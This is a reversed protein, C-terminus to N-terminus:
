CLPCMWATEIAVLTFINWSLTSFTKPLAKIKNCDNLYLAHLQSLGGIDDPISVADRLELKLEEVKEMGCVEAPFVKFNVMGTISVDKVQKLLAFSPHLKTIKGVQARLVFLNQLGSIDPLVPLSETYLELQNLSEIKGIVDPLLKVMKDAVILIELKNFRPFAELMSNYDCKTIELGKLREPHKVFPMLKADNISLYELQPLQDCLTFFAELAQNSLYFGGAVFGEDLFLYKLNKFEKIALMNKTNANVKLAMVSDAPVKMAAEVNQYCRINWTYVANNYPSPYGFSYNQATITAASVILLLTVTLFKFM